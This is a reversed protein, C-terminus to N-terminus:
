HNNNGPQPGTVVTVVCGLCCNSRWQLETTTIITIIIAIAIAIVIIICVM